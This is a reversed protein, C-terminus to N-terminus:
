AALKPPLFISLFVDTPIKQKFYWGAKTSIFSFSFRLDVRVGDNKPQIFSFIPGCHCSNGHCHGGCDHNKECPTNQGGDNECCNKLNKADKKATTECCENGCARVNTTPVLGFVLMLVLPLFIPAFFKM